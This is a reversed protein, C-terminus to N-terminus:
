VHTFVISIYGLRFPKGSVQLRTKVVDFPIVASHTLACALAGTGGLLSYLGISLDPKQRKLQTESLPGFVTAIADEGLENNVGIEYLAFSPQIVYSKSASDYRTAYKPPLLDTLEETFAVSLKSTSIPLDAVDEYMIPMKDKLGQVPQYKAPLTSFLLGLHRMASDDITGYASYFVRFLDEYRSRVIASKDSQSSSALCSDSLIFSELSLQISRALSGFANGLKNREENSPLLSNTNKVDDWWQKAGQDYKILFRTAYTAFNPPIISSQISAANKTFRAEHPGLWAGSGINLEELSPTKSQLETASSPNCQAMLASAMAATALFAERRSLTERDSINSNLSTRHRRQFNYHYDRDQHRQGFQAYEFSSDKIVITHCPSSPPNFAVCQAAHLLVSIQFFFNTSLMQLSRNPALHFFTAEQQQPM